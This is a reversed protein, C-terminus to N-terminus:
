SDCKSRRYAQMNIFDVLHLFYIVLYCHLIHPMRIERYEVIEKCGTPLVMFIALNYFDTTSIMIKNIPPNLTGM